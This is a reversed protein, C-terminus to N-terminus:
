TVLKFKIVRFWTFITFIVILTMLGVCIFEYTPLAFTAQLLMDAPPTTTYNFQLFIQVRGTWLSTLLGGFAFGEILLPPYPSSRHGPHIAFFIIFMVLWMILLWTGLEILIGSSMLNWTYMLADLRLAAQRALEM